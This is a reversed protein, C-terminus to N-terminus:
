VEIKVIKWMVFGGILQLLLMISLLVFGIFSTFMPKIHNPDIMYFAIGLGFPMLFIIVGQMVGQSVLASIKQQIKVRERITNVITDFTESLNGGTEKLIIVSTVFMDVDECQVRKGLNIFAEEMSIGVKQENLILNFEQSIPKPMQKAVSELGQAISLGAKLANSLLTLGDIMQLNFKKIRKKQMFNITFRPIFRGIILGVPFAFAAVMLNSFALTTFILLGTVISSGLIIRKARSTDIKIFMKELADVIWQSYNTRRGDQQQFINPLVNVLVQFSLYFVCLGVVIEFVGFDM